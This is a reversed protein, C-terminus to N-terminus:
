VRLRWLAHMLLSWFAYSIGNEGQGAIYEELYQMNVDRYPNSATGKIMDLLICSDFISNDWYSVPFTIKSQVQM